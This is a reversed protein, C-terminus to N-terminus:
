SSKDFRALAGQPNIIIKGQDNVSFLTNPYNLTSHAVFSSQTNKQLLLEYSPPGFEPQSMKIQIKAAETFISSSFTVMATLTGNISEKQLSISSIKEKQPTCKNGNYRCVEFYFSGQSQSFGLAVQTGDPLTHKGTTLIEAFVAPTTTGDKTDSVNTPTPTAPKQFKAFLTTTGLFLCILCAFQVFRSKTLFM